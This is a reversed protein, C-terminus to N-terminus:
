TCLHDQILELTALENMLLDSDDKSYKVIKSFEAPKLGLKKVGENIQEKEQKHVEWALNLVHQREILKILEDKNKELANQLNTASM